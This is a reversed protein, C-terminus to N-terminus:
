SHLIIVNLNQLMTPLFSDLTLLFSIFTPVKSTPEPPQLSLSIFSLCDLFHFHETMDSKKHGWPSYGM